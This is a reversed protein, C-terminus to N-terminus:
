MLLAWDPQRAMHLMQYFVPVNSDGCRGEKVASGPRLDADIDADFTQLRWM